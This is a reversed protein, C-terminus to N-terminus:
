GDRREGGVTVNCHALLSPVVRTSSLRLCLYFSNVLSSLSHSSHPPPPRSLLAQAILLHLPIRSVNEVTGVPSVDLVVEGGKSEEESEEESGGERGGGRGVHATTVHAHRRMYEHIERRARRPV